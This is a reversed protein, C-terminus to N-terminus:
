CSAASEDDSTARPANGLGNKNVARAEADKLRTLMTAIEVPMEQNEENYIRRLRSRFVRAIEEGLEREM